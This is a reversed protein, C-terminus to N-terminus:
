TSAIDPGFWSALYVSLSELLRHNLNPYNQYTNVFIYFYKSYLTYRALVQLANMQKSEYTLHFIFLFFDFHLTLESVSSCYYFSYVSLFCHLIDDNLFNVQLLSKPLHKDTQPGRGEKPIIYCNKLNQIQDSVAYPRWSSEGVGEWDCVTQTTQCLFPPPLHVLSFTLPAV